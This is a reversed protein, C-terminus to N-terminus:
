PNKLSKGLEDTTEDTAACAGIVQLWIMLDEAVQRRNKSMIIKIEYNM